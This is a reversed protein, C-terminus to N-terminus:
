ASENSFTKETTLEIDYHTTENAGGWTVFYLVGFPRFLLGTIMGAQEPKIVMYVIEGLNFKVSDM